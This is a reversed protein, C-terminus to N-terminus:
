KVKGKSQVKQFMKESVPVLLLQDLVLYEDLLNNMMMIEEKTSNYLEAISTLTEGMKVRHSLSHVKVDSECRYLEYRLYFAYIKASPIMINYKPKEHPLIGNKVKKNLKLLESKEMTLLSAVDALDTGGSVEVETVDLNAISGGQIDFGLIENEGIMAVLLIKKIYDRTEKPLYKLRDDTLVAIDDTGAKKIAREVCGEGCNYAMAAVYWKGFQRYLKNLYAMAASTSSRTDCREDYHDSVTLNYQKATAPMFQWLGVAKKPSVAHSVFGSEVMSLYIFLDSVNEDGLINRLTPLIVKGRKISRKYFRRLGKENKFVFKQFADNYVYSREVDFESFVYSYSPYKEEVLDGYVTVTSFILIFLIKYM